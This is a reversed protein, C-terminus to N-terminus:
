EKDTPDNNRRNHADSTGDGGNGGQKGRIPCAIIVPWPGNALNRCVPITCFGKDLYLRRVIVEDSAPPNAQLGNKKWDAALLQDIRAAEPLVAAQLASALLAAALLLPSTKM